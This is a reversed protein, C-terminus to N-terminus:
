LDVSIVYGAKRKRPSAATARYASSGLQSVTRSGDDVHPEIDLPAMLQALFVSSQRYSESVPEYRVSWVPEMFAPIASGASARWIIEPEKLLELERLM